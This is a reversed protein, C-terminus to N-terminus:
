ADTRSLWDEAKSRLTDLEKGLAATKGLIEGPDNFAHMALDVSKVANVLDGFEDAAAPGVPLSHSRHDQGLFRHPTRRPDRGAM